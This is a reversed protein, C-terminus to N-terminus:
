QRTAPRTERREHRSLQALEVQEANVTVDIHTTTGPERITTGLTLTATDNILLCAVHMVISVGNTLPPTSLVSHRTDGKM